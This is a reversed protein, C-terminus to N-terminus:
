KTLLQSGLWILLLWRQLFILMLLWFSYFFMLEAVYIGIVRLNSFLSVEKSLMSGVIELSPMSSHTDDSQEDMCESKVSRASIYQPEYDASSRLSKFLIFIVYKNCILMITLHPTVVMTSAPPPQILPSLNTFAGVNNFKPSASWNKLVLLLKPSKPHSMWASFAPFFPASLVFYQHLLLLDKHLTQHHYILFKHHLICLFLFCANQPVFHIHM